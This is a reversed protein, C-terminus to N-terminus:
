VIKWLQTCCTYEQCWGQEGKRGPFGDRGALGPIGRMGKLGPFSDGPRGPRGPEGPRGALGALGDFGPQGLEGQLIVPEVTTCSSENIEAACSLEQINASLVNTLSLFDNKRQVPRM